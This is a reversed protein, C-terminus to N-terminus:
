AQPGKTDALWIRQPYPAEFALRVKVPSKQSLRRAALLTKRDLGVSRLFRAVTSPSPVPGEGTVAHATLEERLQEATRYPNESRWRVLAKKQPESLKRFAGRDSRPKPLLAEAPDPAQRYEKLWQYITARSLGKKRSYPINFERETLEQIAKARERPLLDVLNLIIAMKFAKKILRERSTRRLSKV